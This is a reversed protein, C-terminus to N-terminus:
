NTNGTLSLSPVPLPNMYLADRRQSNDRDGDVTCNCTDGVLVVYYTFMVRVGEFHHQTIYDDFSM